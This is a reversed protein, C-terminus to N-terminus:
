HCDPTEASAPRYRTKSSRRSGLGVDMPTMKVGAGHRNREQGQPTLAFGESHRLRFEEQQQTCVAARPHAIHMIVINVAPAASSYFCGPYM